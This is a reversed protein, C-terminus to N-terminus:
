RPVVIVDEVTFSWEIASSEVTFDYIRRDEEDFEVRGQGEGRHDAVEQLPRGSVSSRATLRFTGGGPVAPHRTEWTVRFRGSDLMVDGITQSGTGSWTNVPRYVTVFEHSSEAAPSGHCAALAMALTLALGARVPPANM